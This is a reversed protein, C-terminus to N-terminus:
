YSCSAQMGCGTLIHLVFTYTYVFVCVCVCRHAPHDATLIGAPLVSKEKAWVTWIPGVDRM